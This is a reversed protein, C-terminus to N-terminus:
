KRIYRVLRDKLRTLFGPNQVLFHSSLDFPIEDANVSRTVNTEERIQLYSEREDRPGSKEALIRFHASGTLFSFLRFIQDLFFREHEDSAQRVVITQRPQGFTGEYLILPIGYKIVIEYLKNQKRVSLIGNVAAMRCGALVSWLPTEGLDVATSKPQWPAIHQFLPGLNNSTVDFLGEISRAVERYSLLPSEAMPAEMPSIEYSGEEWSVAQLLAHIKQTKYLDEIETRSVGHAEQVLDGLRRQRQSVVFLDRQMNLIKQLEAENLWGRDVMLHGFLEPMLNSHIRVVEGRAFVIKKRKDRHSLILQGTFRENHLHDFIRRAAWSGLDGSIAENLPSKSRSSMASQRSDAKMTGKKRAWTDTKLM